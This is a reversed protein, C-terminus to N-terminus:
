EEPLAVLITSSIQETGGYALIGRNLDVLDGGVAWTAGDPDIWAGHFDLSTRLGSDASRWLGDQRVAIAGERGVTVGQGDGAVFLGNMAATAAPARDILSDESLELIVGSFFGGTAAVVSDNGHM